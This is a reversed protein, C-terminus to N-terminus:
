KIIKEMLGDTTQNKQGNKRLINPRNEEENEKAITKGNQKQNEKGNM